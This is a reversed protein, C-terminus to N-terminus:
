QEGGGPGFQPEVETAYCSPCIGHSFMTNTHASIYAEVTQWYNADDRIKRCYSCIPLIEQLTRVEAFATQLQALMIEREEEARKRATIDRATAYITREGTDPAANWMLWRYSGDKCLYRNEFAQAHGGNRVALNQQITRERDAPHVFEIFPRSMLEALTFGLTREWAPNLQRFYGAFDLQCLLDINLAFFQDRLERAERARAEKLLAMEINMRLEREAFPAVVFGFPGHVGAAPLSPVQDPAVLLITPVGWRRGAEVATEGAPRPFDLSALVVDPDTLDRASAAVAASEFAGVVQYGYSRLRSSLDQSVAPDEELILLRHAVTRDRM